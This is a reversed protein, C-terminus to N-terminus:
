DIIGSSASALEVIGKFKGRRGGRVVKDKERV